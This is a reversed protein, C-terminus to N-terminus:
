VCLIHRRVNELESLAMTVWAIYHSLRLVAVAPEPLPMGDFDSEHTHGTYKLVDAVRPLSPKDGFVCPCVEPPYADFASSRIVIPLLVSLDTSPTHTGMHTHTRKHTHNYTLGCAGRWKVGIYFYHTQM